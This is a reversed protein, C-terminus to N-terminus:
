VMRRISLLARKGDLHFERVVEVDEPIEAVSLSQALVEEQIFERYREVIGLLYPDSDKSLLLAIREEVELGLDKRWMQIAHVFDRVLGEERLEEDLATDLIVAYQGESEVSVHGHSELIVEVEDRNLTVDGGSLPLTLRGERVLRRAVEQSCSALAKAIEKVREGYRPGLLAFKPKLRVTIYEPLEQVWEIRKVNLEDRIIDAFVRVRLEDAEPVVLIASRLPQRLKVGAKNRVARGLNVLRRAVDMSRLLEWDIREELVEPYMELHVSERKELLPATLNQYLIESTFPTFPALLKTLELLVSYLTMYAEKKEADWQSKWFRRRSRRIYWNSLDEVVFEEIAKAAKSIEFRELNERVEKVLRFFAHVLWRDLLNKRGEELAFSSPSFGDINAYLAFFTYVNWLTDFFRSVVERLHVKGFRKPVWPPSVSFVYWRLVDAGYTEVLDWPNVVNGIHKSMKQGKEDLGLETVLCNRFAPSGFLISALVHLSYFWGRTQDIAECIFDAPFSQAFEEQNEFPYHHQAVFMAGSDFWCDIVEPVRQMTGGCSPCSLVVRDVYPRHLEIEGLQSLSRSRLEDLSGIAETFSCTKCRWINLPTGWYRERSLAWDVVNELFDGFRGDRIHEPVWNIKQNNELLLDRFATTRIFWSEKAYYLLPTDCRWCFPYSHRYTERRFLKGERRLYEIIHPDADKVWMGKWPTVSDDYTGDPRVPQLVSLGEKQALRMDDEGFAPAIHVIGTGEETSVFDGAFVRYGKEARVFPMLPEYELGLLEEGKMERLVQVSKEGFLRAASAKGLIFRERRESEVEVYDLDKGVALAVNAVLTWPTTTWVLFFTNEKGRLAFKVYVSPDDVERYGLAVEHSSLSTGCRPCYPLVKYGQYLLGREWLQKLIWWLSEIYENTCTIYPHELDMWIGMRETLREWERIYKFVSEKCKANFAEVGFQEIDQKGKIGLEKEVELEVPLGHTDWGAKRPVYFGCMTKYRPVLDKISRGIVHGAHPYGNATPPGEYFVFRPNGEREKLTKEFIRREKWFSLIREEEKPLSSLKALPQFM